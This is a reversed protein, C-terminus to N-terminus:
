FEYDLALVKADAKLASAITAHYPHPGYASLAARDTLEVAVAHTYGQARDTFNAGVSLRQIGPVNGHLSRLAALHEEIRAHSVGENFQIWVLHNVPM